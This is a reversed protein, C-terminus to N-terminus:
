TRLTTDAWRVHTEITITETGLMSLHVCAPENVLVSLQVYGKQRYRELEAALVFYPDGRKM